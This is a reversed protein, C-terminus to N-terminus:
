ESCTRAITVILIIEPKRGPGHAEREQAHDVFQIGVLHLLGQLLPLVLVPIDERKSESSIVHDHHSKGVVNM